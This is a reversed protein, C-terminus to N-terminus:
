RSCLVTFMCVGSHYVLATLSFNESVFPVIQFRFDFFSLYKLSWFCFYLIVFLSRCFVVCFVLSRWKLKATFRIYMDQAYELTAYIQKLEDQVPKQYMPTTIIDITTNKSSLSGTTEVNPTVTSVVVAGSTTGSTDTLTILNVVLGIIWIMNGSAPLHM